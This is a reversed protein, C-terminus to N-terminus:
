PFFIWSSAIIVMLVALVQAVCSEPAGATNENVSEWSEAVSRFLRPWADFHGAHLRLMREPMARLLWYIVYAPTSYHTGYLFQEDPPMTEMREKFYELRKTNLAGIPKSLDRFVSADSLDLKESSYDKLM